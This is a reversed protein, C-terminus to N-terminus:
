VLSKAAAVIATADMGHKKYLEDATYASQGFEAHVGLIKAQVQTGATVLSAVLTQGAGGVIQHDEVTVLTGGCATLAAQHATSCWPASAKRRSCALPRSRTRSWRAM